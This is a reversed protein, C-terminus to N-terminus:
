RMLDLGAESHGPAFMEKFRELGPRGTLRPLEVVAVPVACNVIRSRIADVRRSGRALVVIRGAGSSWEKTREGLTQIRPILVKGLRENQLDIELSVLRAWSGDDAHQAVLLDPVVMGKGPTGFKRRIAWCPLVTSSGPMNLFTALADVIWLAHYVAM